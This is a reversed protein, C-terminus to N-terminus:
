VEEMTISVNWYAQIGRKVVTFNCSTFIVTYTYDDQLPGSEINNVPNFPTPNIRIRFSSKGSSSEYFAKLDEAAWAGDVSENRFSPLMEWSVNFQKKDAVFYKRLFGNAMREQREIRNTSISFESRNHESVRRFRTNLKDGFSLINRSAVLSSYKQGPAVFTSGGYTFQNNAPDMALPDKAEIYLISGKPLSEFSM